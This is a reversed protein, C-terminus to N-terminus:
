GAPDLALVSVMARHWVLGTLDDRVRFGISDNETLKISIPFPMKAVFVKTSDLFGGPNFTGVGFNFSLAIDTNKQLNVIETEVENTFTFVQTGSTLPGAIAGYDDPDLNGVDDLGITISQAYWIEGAPPQFKFVQPTVSGDINMDESSGNLFHNSKVWIGVPPIPSIPVGQPTRASQQGLHAVTM